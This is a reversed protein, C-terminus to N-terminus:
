QARKRAPRALCRELWGTTRPREGLPAGLHRGLGLISAVALDALSYDGVLHDRGDLRTELMDLHQDFNKRNYAATAASRQDPAYSVPSDLGHYVYQLMYPQLETQSWVTWSLASARAPGPSPWLGREVGYTAGLHLLIALSEFYTEDGDVLAPVKGNPHIALYEPGRQEGGERDVTHLEYSVGLEELAWHVRTGSSRPFTYLTVTM